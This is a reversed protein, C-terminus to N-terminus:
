LQLIPMSIAKFLRWHKATVREQMQVERIVCVTHKPLNPLQVLSILGVSVYSADGYYWEVSLDLNTSEMPVLEPNGGSAQRLYPNDITTASSLNGFGTRAMTVSYSARVKIDDTVAIDFDINPLFNDYSNTAPYLQEQGSSIITFDNDGDWSQGTPVVVNAVSTLDTSEQRLGITLNSEMGGIEFSGQLQVYAATVKEAIKRDISIVNNPQIKGNVFNNFNGPHLGETEEYMRHNGASDLQTVWYSESEDVMATAPDDQVSVMIRSQANAYANEISEKIKHFDGDLGDRFFEINGTASSNSPFAKGFDRPTYYSGWDPGFVDPDVGGWNGM